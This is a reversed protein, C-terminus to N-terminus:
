RRRNGARRSPTPAPRSRDPTTPEGFGFARVLAPAIEDLPLAESDTIQELVVGSGLALVLQAMTKPPLAPAHGTRELMRTLASALGGITRAHAEAYRRNVDPDRAAHIRFEILLEAWRSHIAADHKPARLLEILVEPGSANEHARVCPRDRNRSGSPGLQRARRTPRWFTAATRPQM